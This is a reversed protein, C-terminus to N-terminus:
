IMLNKLGLNSKSQLHKSIYYNNRVKRHGTIPFPLSSRCKNLIKVENAIVEIDGTSMKQLFMFFCIFMPTDLPPPGSGGRKRSGGKEDTVGGEM